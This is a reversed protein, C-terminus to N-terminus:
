ECTEEHSFIHIEGTKSWSGLSSAFDFSFFLSQSVCFWKFVVVKKSWKWFPFLWFGTPLQNSVPKFLQCSNSSFKFIWANKMHINVLPFCLKKDHTFCSFFVPPICKRASMFVPRFWMYKPLADIFFNVEGSLESGGGGGEAVKFNLFYVKEGKRICLGISSSHESISM